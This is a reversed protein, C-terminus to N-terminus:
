EGAFASRWPEPADPGLLVYPVGEASRRAEGHTKVVDTFRVFFETVSPALVTVVPEDRGYRIVQGVQGEPGPNLDVGLMNMAGDDGLPVRAVNIYQAPTWGPPESTRIINTNLTPDERLSDRWIGWMKVNYALPRFHYGVFMGPQSLDVEGDRWRYLAKYDEPLSLGLQAEAEALGDDDLGPNFVGAEPVLAALASAAAGFVDNM